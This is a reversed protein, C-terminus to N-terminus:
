EENVVRVQAFGRFPCFDEISLSVMGDAFRGIVGVKYAKPYVTVLLLEEFGGPEITEIGIKYGLYETVAGVWFVPCVHLL